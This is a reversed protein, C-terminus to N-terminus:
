SLLATRRACHCSCSELLLSSLGSGGKPLLRVGVYQLCPGSAAGASHVAAAGPHSGGASGWGAMDSFSTAGGAFVARQSFAREYRDTAREVDKLSRAELRALNYNTKSEEPVVLAGRQYWSLAEDIRGALLARDGRVSAYLRLGLRATPWDSRAEFFTLLALLGFYYVALGMRLSKTLDWYFGKKMRWLPWFNLGLYVGMLPLGMSLTLRAIEGIRYLFMYEHAASHYILGGGVLIGIGSWAWILAHPQSFVGAVSPFYPQILFFGIGILLLMVPVAVEYAAELPLLFLWVSLGGILGM